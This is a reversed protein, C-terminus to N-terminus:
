RPVVQEPEDPPATPPNILRQALREPSILVAHRIHFVGRSWQGTLRATRGAAPSSELARGEEFWRLDRSALLPTEGDLTWNGRRDQELVGELTVLRPQWRQSRAKDAKDTKLGLSGATAIVATALAAAVLAARTISRGHRGLM